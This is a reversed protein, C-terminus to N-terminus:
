KFNPDAKIRKEFQQVQNNTLGLQTAMNNVASSLATVSLRAPLQDYHVYKCDPGCPSLSTFIRFHENVCYRLSGDEFEVRRQVKRDVKVTSSKTKPTTLKLAPPVVMRYKEKVAAAAPKKEKPVLPRLRAVKFKDSILNHEQQQTFTLFSKLASWLLRIIEPETYCRWILTWSRAGDNCAHRDLNSALLHQSLPESATAFEWQCHFM